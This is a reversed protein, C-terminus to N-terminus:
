PTIFFYHLKINSKTTREMFTWLTTLLVTTTGPFGTTRPTLYQTLCIFLTFLYAFLHLASMLVASYIDSEWHTNNERCVLCTVNQSLRPPGSGPTNLLPIAGVTSFLSWETRASSELLLQLVSVKTKWLYPLVELKQWYHKTIDM